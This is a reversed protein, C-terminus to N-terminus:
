SKVIIEEVCLRRAISTHTIKGDAEKQTTFAEIAALIEELAPDPVRCVVTVLHEITTANM